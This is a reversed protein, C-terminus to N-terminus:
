GPQHARPSCSSALAAAPPSFVLSGAYIMHPLAGPYDKPDPTIEAFTKLTDGAPDVLSFALIGSDPAIATATFAVPPLGAVTATLTITNDADGRERQREQGLLRADGKKRDDNQRDYDQLLPRAAPDDAGLQHLGGPQEPERDTAVVQQAVAPRLHTM